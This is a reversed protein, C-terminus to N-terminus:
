HEDKKIKLFFYYPIKYWDKPLFDKVNEYIKILIKDEFTL